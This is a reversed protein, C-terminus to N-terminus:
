VPRDRQAAWAAVQSRSRLGLKGLVHKAHVEATSVSIVLAAAIERNTKGQSLLTALFVIHLVENSRESLRSLRKGVIDGLGEPVDTEILAPDIPVYAGERKVVRGAEVLYRLVEQVFLPNGETQRHVSEARSLPVAQGRLTCYFQHVEAVTLGHLGLRAFHPFRREVPL